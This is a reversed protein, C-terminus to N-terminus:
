LRQPSTCRAVTREPRIRLLGKRVEPEQETSSGKRRTRLTRHEGARRKCDHDGRKLGPEQPHEQNGQQIKEM